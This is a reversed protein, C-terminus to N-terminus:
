YNGYLFANEFKRFLIESCKFNFPIIGTSAEEIAKTLFYNECRNFKSTCSIWIAREKKWKEVMELYEKREHKNYTLVIENGKFIRKQPVM